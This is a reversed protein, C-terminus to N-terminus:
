VIDFDFAFLIGFHWPALYSSGIRYARQDNGNTAPNDMRSASHCLVLPLCVCMGTSFVRPLLTTFITGFYTLLSLHTIVQALSELTLSSATMMSRSEEPSPAQFKEKKLQKQWHCLFDSAKDLGSLGLLGAIKWVNGGEFGRELYLCWAVMEVM